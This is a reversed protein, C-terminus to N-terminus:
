GHAAYRRRAQLSRLASTGHKDAAGTTLQSLSSQRYFVLLDLFHELLSESFYVKRAMKTCFRESESERPRQPAKQHKPTSGSVLIVELITGPVGSISLFHLFSDGLSVCLCAQLFFVRYNGRNTIYNHTLDAPLTSGQNFSKLM